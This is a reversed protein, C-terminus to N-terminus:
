HLTMRAQFETYQHEFLRPANQFIVMAFNDAVSTLFDIKRVSFVGPTSAEVNLALSATGGLAEV